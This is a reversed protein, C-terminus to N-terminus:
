AQLHDALALPLMLCEIQADILVVRCGKKTMRATWRGTGGGADLVLANPNTPVHPEIYKWTITDFIKYYM